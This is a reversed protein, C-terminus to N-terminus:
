WGGAEEHWTCSNCAYAGMVPQYASIKYMRLFLWIGVFLKKEFNSIAPDFLNHMQLKLM